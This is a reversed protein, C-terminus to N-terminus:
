PAKEPETGSVHWISALRPGRHRGTAGACGSDARRDRGRDSSRPRRDRAPLDAGGPHELAGVSDDARAYQGPRPRSPTGQIACTTSTSRRYARTSCHRSGPDVSTAAGFCGARRVGFVRCGSLAQRVQRPAVCAPWGERLPRRVVEEGALRSLHSTSRSESPSVPKESRGRPRGGDIPTV